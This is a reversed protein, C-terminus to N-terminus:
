RKTTSSSVKSEMADYNNLLFQTVEGENIDQDNTFQSVLADWSSMADIESRKESSALKLFENKLLDVLTLPLGKSNLASFISYADNLRTVSIKLIEVGNL